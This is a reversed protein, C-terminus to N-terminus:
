AGDVGAFLQGEPIADDAVYGAGGHRGTVPRDRQSEDPPLRWRSAGDRDALGSDGGVDDLQREPLAQALFRALADPTPAPELDLQPTAPHSALYTAVIRVEDVEEPPIHAGVDGPRRGHVLAVRTRRDLEAPDDPLPGWDVLRGAILWFADFSPRAPHAAVILRSRAHTAELIGDLRGLVVELRRARRRLWSAREFRQATAAERMEAEVHAVLRAAADGHEFIRLAADLRRRYLNPDLDGLCPSLCRGM